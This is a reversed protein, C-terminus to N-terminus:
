LPKIIKVLIKEIGDLSVFGKALLTYMGDAGGKSPATKLPLVDSESIDISLTSSVLGASKVCVSSDASKQGDKSIPCEGKCHGKNKCAHCIRAPDFRGDTELVHRVM